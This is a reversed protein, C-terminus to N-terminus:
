KGFEGEEENFQSRRSDPPQFPFRLIRNWQPATGEVAHTRRTEDKWTAEVFSRVAKKDLIVDEDIPDRLFLDRSYNKEEEEYDSDDEMEVYQSPSRRRRHPRPSPSSSSAPSRSSRGRRSRRSRSRSRGEKGRQRSRHRRPQSSSSTRRWPRTSNRWREDNDEEDDERRREHNEANSSPPSLSNAPSPSSRKQKALKHLSRRM